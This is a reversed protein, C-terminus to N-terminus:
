RFKLKQAAILVMKLLIAGHKWRAINTEGYVREHYRIPLDIIKLNQKAAGFILDFDGFPDFDGFYARNAEIKKYDDRHLVKTGCLTDQVKQGLVWSIAISFARNGVLNLPRMAKGQMPYVLRVGNIFEGVGLIWSCFFKPLEEPLVSIDADLIMFVDGSAHAFGTEVADRKGRGPQQLLKLEIDTRSGLEKKIAELTDDTSNGEVFIVETSRGMKPIRRVLERIHGAENRAPVIVSVSYDNESRRVPKRLIYFNTLAFLRFPWLRVLIRNFLASVIPLNLPFLIEPSSSVCELGVISAINEIDHPSLWNQKLLPTALNLKRAITLPWEWLRSYSNVIIRADSSVQNSINQLFSQVDWLDDMLDSIIIYDVPEDIRLAHADEVRFDLHNAEHRARAQDIQNKSFDVGIGRLPKLDSLLDGSGCGIELVRSREPVLFRYANTLIRRYARPFSRRSRKAVVADNWHHIREELYMREPPMAFDSMRVGGWVDELTTKVLVSPQRRM